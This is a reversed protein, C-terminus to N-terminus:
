VLGTPGSFHQDDVAVPYDTPSYSVKGLQGRGGPLPRLATPPDFMFVYELKERPVCLKKALREESPSCETFYAGRPQYTAPPQLAKFLWTPQSSIANFGQKNTFHNM